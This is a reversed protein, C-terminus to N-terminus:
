LFCLSHRGNSVSLFHSGQAAESNCSKRRKWLRGTPSEPKPHMRRLGPERNKGFGRQASPNGSPLPERELAVTTEEPNLHVRRTYKVRGFFPTCILSFADFNGFNRM